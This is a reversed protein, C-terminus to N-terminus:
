VCQLRAAKTPILSYLPHLFPRLVALLVCTSSVHPLSLCFNRFTVKLLDQAELDAHTSILSADVLVAVCLEVWCTDM